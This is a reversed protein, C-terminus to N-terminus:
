AWARTQESPRRAATEAAARGPYDRPLAAAATRYQLRLQAELASAHAQVVSARIDRVVAQLVQAPALGTARQATEQQATEQQATGDQAPAEVHEGGGLGWCGPDFPEGVFEMRDSELRDQEAVQTM